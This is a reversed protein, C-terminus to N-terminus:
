RLSRCKIPLSSRLPRKLTLENTWAESTDDTPSTQSPRSRFFPLMRTAILVGFAGEVGESQGEFQILSSLPSIVNELSTCGLMM